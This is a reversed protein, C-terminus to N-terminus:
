AARIRSLDAMTDRWDVEAFYHAVEDALEWAAGATEEDVPDGPGRERLQLAVIEALYELRERLEAIEDM